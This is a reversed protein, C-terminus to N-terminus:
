ANSMQTSCPMHCYTKYDLPTTLKGLSLPVPGVLFHSRLKFFEVDFPPVPVNASLCFDVKDKFEKVIEGMKDVADEMLQFQLFM